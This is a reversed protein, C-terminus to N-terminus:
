FKFLTVLLFISSFIVSIATVHSVIPTASGVPLSVQLPRLRNLQWDIEFNNNEECKLHLNPAPLYTVKKEHKEFLGGIVASQYRVMVDPVHLDLNWPADVHILKGNVVKPGSSAIEFSVQATLVFPRAKVDYVGVELNPHRPKVSWSPIKATVSSPNLVHWSKQDITFPALRRLAWVDVFVSRPLPWELHLKCTDWPIVKEFEGRPRPIINLSLSYQRHQGSNKLSHSAEITLDAQPENSAKSATFSGIESEKEDQETNNKESDEFTEEIKQNQEAELLKFKEELLEFDIENSDDGEASEREASLEALISSSPQENSQGNQEKGKVSTEEDKLIIVILFFISATIATVVSSLWPYPFM